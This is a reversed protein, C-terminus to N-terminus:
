LIDAALRDAEDLTGLDRAHVEGLRMHIIDSRDILDREDDSLEGRVGCSQVIEKVIRDPDAEALHVATKREEEHYADDFAQVADCVANLAQLVNFARQAALPSFSAVAAKVHECHGDGCRKCHLRGEVVRIPVNPFWLAGNPPTPEEPRASQALAFADAINVARSLMAHLLSLNDTM